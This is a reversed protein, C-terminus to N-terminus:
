RTGSITKGLCCKVRKFLLYAFNDPSNRKTGLVPNKGSEWLISSRGISVIPGRVPKVMHLKYNSKVWVPTIMAYCEDIGTDWLMGLRAERYITRGALLASNQINKDVSTSGALPYASGWSGVCWFLSNIPYGVLSAVADAICAAQAIPNGFLISEPNLVFGAIDNNWLPDIESLYAVDFGEHRICPIDVFIDLIDWVSFLYYHSNGSGGREGSKGQTTSYGKGVSKLLAGKKPESIKMGLTPFCYPIKTIEIMRSPEWFSVTIGFRLRLGERCVCIISRMRDPDTELGKSAPDTISMKAPVGALQIPFIGEWRIDKILDIFSGKCADGTDARVECVSLYFIFFLFFWIGRLFHM